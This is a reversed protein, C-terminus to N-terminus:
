PERAVGTRLEAIRDALWPALADAAAANGHANWHVGRLHYTPAEVEAARLAPTLDLVPVDLTALLDRLRRNPYERDFDEARMGNAAVLGFFLADDVQTEDPALTAVIPLGRARCFAVLDRLAAETDRWARRMRRREPARLVRDIREWSRELHREVSLLPREVRAGDPATEHLLDESFAIPYLSGSMWLRLLVRGAMVAKSGVPSFPGRPPDRRIDNGVYFGLLVLDPDLRLGEADLLEQYERVATHVVGLNIVEIQPGLALDIRAVYSQGFPVMGVTFSDGLAVVRVVGPPKAPAREVDYFGRSNPRTGLWEQNPALRYRVSDPSVDLWAPPDGVASWVRLGAEAGLFSGLLTWAVVDLARVPASSLSGRALRRLLWGSLAFVCVFFLWYRLGHKTNM